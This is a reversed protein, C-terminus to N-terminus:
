PRIALVDVQAAHRITERNQHRCKGGFFICQVSLDFPEVLGKGATRPYTEHQMLARHVINMSTFDFINRITLVYWDDCKAVDHHMHTRALRQLVRHRCDADALWNMLATVIERRVGLLMQARSQANRIKIGLMSQAFRDVYKASAFEREVLQM